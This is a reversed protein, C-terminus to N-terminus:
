CLNYITCYVSSLEKIYSFYLNIDILIVFLDISFYYLSIYQYYILCYFLLWSYKNNGIRVGYKDCNNLIDNIFWNCLILSLPCGQRVGRHISFENSLMDFNRARAKSTFYLFYLNSIFDFCKDRIGLHFIKSLINFIPVSDYAKKLDLFAVYAFKGYSKRRKCIEKTRLFFFCFSGM